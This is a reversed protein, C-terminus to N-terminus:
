LDIGWGCLFLARIQGESLTQGLDFSNNALRRCAMGYAVAKSQKVKCHSSM